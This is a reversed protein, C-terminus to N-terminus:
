PLPRACPPCWRHSSLVHCGLRACVSTMSGRLLLWARGIRQALVPSVRQAQRAVGRVHQWRAGLDALLAAAHEGAWAPLADPEV